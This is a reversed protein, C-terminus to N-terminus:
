KLFFSTVDKLKQDNMSVDASINNLPSNGVTSSFVCLQIRARGSFWPGLGSKFYSVLSLGPNEANPVTM